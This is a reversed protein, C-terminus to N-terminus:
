RSLHPGSLLPRAADAMDKALHMQGSSNLHCRDDQRESMPITDLDPGLTINAHRAAVRVRAKNLAPWPAQVEACISERTILWRHDPAVQILADLHRAYDETSTRRAANTEGQMFIILPRQFGSRALSTLAGRVENMKEPNTWQEIASGSIAM